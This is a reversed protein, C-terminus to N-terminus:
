HRWTKRAILRRLGASLTADDAVILSDVCRRFRTKSRLLERAATQASTAVVAGYAASAVKVGDLFSDTGWRELMFALDIVDRSRFADDGGRDANALLKEAFCSRADLSPVGLASDAGGSLDIRGEHIIEFKIPVDGASVFTRIGYRDAVVERALPLPSAMIEGLSDPLIASRLLRYGDRDSCLLDIDASERYEDLALVIRTGGGFYCKARLLLEGNLSRLVRAVDLHRARRYIPRSM